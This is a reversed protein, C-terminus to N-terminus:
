FGSRVRWFGVLEAPTSPRAFEDFCAKARLRVPDDAKFDLGSNWVGHAQRLNRWAALQAQLLYLKMPHEADLEKRVKELGDMAATGLALADEWTGASGGRRKREVKSFLQDTMVLGPLAAMLARDRTGLADGSMAAVSASVVARDHLGLRWECLAKLAQATGWLGDAELSARAAADVELRELELLAAGYGARAGAADAAGEFGGSEARFEFRARNELEAARSFAEQAERLRNVEACSASLLLLVVGAARV